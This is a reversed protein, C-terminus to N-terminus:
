GTRRTRMDNASPTSAGPTRLKPEPCCWDSSARPSDTIEHLRQPAPCDTPSAYQLRQPAGSRGAATTTAVRITRRAHGHRDVIVVFARGHVLVVQRLHAALRVSSTSRAPTRCKRSEDVRLASGDRSLHGLCTPAGDHAISSATEAEPRLM